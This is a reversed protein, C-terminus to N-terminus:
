RGKIWLKRGLVLLAIGAIFALGIAILLTPNGGPEGQRELPHLSPSPTPTPAAREPTSTPIATPTPTSPKAALVPVATPSPTFPGPASTPTATSTPSPPVPTSPTATPTPSPPAPTLPTATPTPSPPAPTSPTVTPTPSPTAPTLPTAAPTPTPAITFNATVTKDGDMTIRTVAANLDAVDGTWGDFQWGEDARARITVMSGELYTHEGVPPDTQGGGTVAMTLTHTAPEVEGVTLHLTHSGMEYEVPSENAEGGEVFLRVEEGEGGTFSLVYYGNQGEATITTASAVTEGGIRVEVLTGDEARDGDVYVFGDLVMPLPPPQAAVPIPLVTVILGVFALLAILRNLKATFKM